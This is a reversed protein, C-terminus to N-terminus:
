WDWEDFRARRYCAQCTSFWPPCERGCEDCSGYGAMMGPKDLAAVVRLGAAEELESAQTPTLGPLGGTALSVARLDRALNAAKEAEELSARGPLSASRILANLRGISAPQHLLSRASVMILEYNDVPCMTLAWVSAVDLGRGISLLGQLRALATTADFPRVPLFETARQSTLAFASLAAPLQEASDVALEGLTPRLPVAKPIPWATSTLGAAASTAQKILKPDASFWQLGAPTFTLGEDVIGFRGARGLIQAAEWLYLPRRSTGDFKSGEALAVATLPLNIGHGIVDTCVMIDAEGSALKAVQDARAAPPLAGYLVAPTRGAARLAEAAALVAARSFVVLASGAPLKTFDVQGAYRLSSLRPHAKTTAAQADTVLSLVLDAARPDCIAHVTDFRGSILARTWAWGRDPDTIWHCEDLVLVGGKDLPAAEATACIIDADPNISEEGTVMGVRETGLRASLRDYVERALMRLPGAYVGRSAGALAEVAEHTKGSNTPGTHVVLTTPGALGELVRIRLGQTSSLAELRQVRADKTAKKARAREARREAKSPALSSSSKAPKGSAATLTVSKVAGVTWRGEDDPFLGAALAAAKFVDPKVGRMRAAVVVDVTWADALAARFGRLDAAAADVSEATARNPGDVVLLGTSLALDYEDRGIGLRSCVARVGLGGTTM